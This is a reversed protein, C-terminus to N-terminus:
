MMEITRTKKLPASGRKKPNILNESTRLITFFCSDLQIEMIKVGKIEDKWYGRWCSFGSGCNKSLYVAFDFDDCIRVQVQASFYSLTGPKMILIKKAITMFFYM